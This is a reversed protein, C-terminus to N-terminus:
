PPRSMPCARSFTTSRTECDGPCGSTPQTLHGATCLRRAQALSTPTATLWREVAEDMTPLEDALGLNKAGIISSILAVAAEDATDVGREAAHRDLAFGLRRLEATAAPTGGTRRTVMSRLYSWWDAREPDAAPARQDLWAAREAASLPLLHTAYGNFADKRDRFRHWALGPQPGLMKLVTGSPEDSSSEEPDSLVILGMRSTPEWYEVCDDNLSPREELMFGRSHLAACLEDFDLRPRFGGYRDVLASGIRDERTLWPLRHTQAGFYTAAWDDQPGGRQWGFEILGFDCLMGSRSVESTCGPGLIEEVAALDSTHDVGLVTGTIMLDSFFDLDSVAANDFTLV